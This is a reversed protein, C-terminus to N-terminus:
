IEFYIEKYVTIPYGIDLHKCSISYIDICLENYVPFPYGIFGNYFHKCNISSKLAYNNTSM